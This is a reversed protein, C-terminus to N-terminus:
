APLPPPYVLSGTQVITVPTLYHLKKKKQKKWVNRGVTKWEDGLVLPSPTFTTPFLQLKKKKKKRIFKGQSLFFFTLDFHDPKLFKRSTATISDSPETSVHVVAKSASQKGNCCQIEFSHTQSNWHIYIYINTSDKCKGSFFSGNTLAQDIWKVNQNKKFKLTM